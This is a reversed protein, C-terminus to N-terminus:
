KSWKNKTANTMYIKGSNGKLKLIKLSTSPYKTIM